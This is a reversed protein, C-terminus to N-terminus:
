ASPMLWPAEPLARGTELYTKLNSLVAAWADATADREEEDEFNEHLLTLRVLQGYGFLMISVKTPGHGGEEGEKTHDDDTPAAWTLVLRVSPLCELVTGRLDAIGSGDIRQHEWTSGVQWSSINAHGWYQASQEPNTLAHWTETPSAGIYIVQRLSPQAMITPLTPLTQKNTPHFTYLPTTHYTAQPSLPNFPFSQHHHHRSVPSPLNLSQHKNHLFLSTVRGAFKDVYATHRGVASM